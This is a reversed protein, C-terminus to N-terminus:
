VTVPYRTLRIYTCTFTKKNKAPQLCISIRQEIAFHMEDFVFFDRVMSTGVDMGSSSLKSIRHHHQDLAERGQKRLDEIKDLRLPGKPAIRSGITIVPLEILYWSSSPLAPISFNNSNDDPPRFDIHRCFYEPDVIFRAGVSNIWAPSMFGRLFVICSQPMTAQSKTDSFFGSPDPFSTSKQVRHRGHGEDGSDYDTHTNAQKQLSLPTSATNDESELPYLIVCDERPPPLHITIPAPVSTLFEGLANHNQGAGTALRSYARV